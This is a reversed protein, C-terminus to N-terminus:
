SSATSGLSLRDTSGPDVWTTLEVINNDLDPFFLSLQHGYDCAEIEMEMETDDDQCNSPSHQKLLLPLVEEARKFEERSVTLAFHEGFQRRKQFLSSTTDCSSQGVLLPAIAIKAKGHQLFAPSEPCTPYFHDATTYTHKMGLVATYWAISAHIDKAVICIHDLETTLIPRLPAAAKTTFKRLM